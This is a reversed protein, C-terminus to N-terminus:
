FTFMIICYLIYNNVIVYTYMFPLYSLILLAYIYEYITAFYCLTNKINSPREIKEAGTELSFDNLLIRLIPGTGYRLVTFDIDTHHFFFLNAIGYTITYHLHLKTQLFSGTGRRIM